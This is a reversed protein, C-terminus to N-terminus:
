CLLESVAPCEEDCNESLDIVAKEGDVCVYEKCLEDGSLINVCLYLKIYRFLYTIGVGSSRSFNRFNCSVLINLLSPM